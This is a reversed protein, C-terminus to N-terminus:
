PTPCVNPDSSKWGVYNNANYKVLWEYLPQFYRLIPRADMKGTKGGTIAMLAEPWPRSSGLKLMDGMLAGAEKSRYFDCEHLPGRHGAADCLAEYFQFQLINAVFYRIYPTGSSIHYKSAPDFDDNTRRVGPCYGAYELSFLFSPSNPM